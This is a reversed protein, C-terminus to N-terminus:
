IKPKRNKWYLYISMAAALIGMIFSATKILGTGNAVVYGCLVIVTFLIFSATTSKM